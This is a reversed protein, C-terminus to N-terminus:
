LRDLPSTTTRTAQEVHTYIMTTQLSRHGLLLQITRIDTGAHLLHTAFSHRLTHVSAHKCIGAAQLATRFARQVTTDSAHWRLLAGSEPHTRQAQSPFVYQWAWSGSASPYKRELAGPMPAFGSGRLLDAKHLAMVSVLHMRLPELLRDPLVTVRDKAGKGNRVSIQRGPVDIDKVRLTVCESVRLGAGYMLQAMLLPTGRMNALTAQVEQQSLVVPLRHRRQVRQLNSIDGLPCALVSDYLFVIANLAQSQTSASVKRVRALDNLFAAVEAAAM